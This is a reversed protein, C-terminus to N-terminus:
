ILECPLFGVQFSSQVGSLCTGLAEGYDLVTFISHSSITNIM